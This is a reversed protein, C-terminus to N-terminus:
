QHQERHRAVAAAVARQLTPRCVRVELVPVGVAALCADLGAPDFGAGAPRSWEGEGSPQFGLTRLPEASASPSVVVVIDGDPAGGAAILEVITGQAVVRGRDLVLVADCVRSAEALDHTAVLIGTGSARLDRLLAELRESSEHDVGVTPEDLVLLAPRHLTGAVLNVRRRM